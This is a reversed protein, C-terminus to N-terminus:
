RPNFFQVVEILANRDHVIRFSKLLHPRVISHPEHVTGGHVDTFLGDIGRIHATEAGCGSGGDGTVLGVNLVHTHDVVPGELPSEDMRTTVWGGILRDGRNTSLRQTNKVALAVPIPLKRTDHDVRIPVLGGGRCWRLLSGSIAVHAS